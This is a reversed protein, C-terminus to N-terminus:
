VSEGVGDGLAKGQYTGAGSATGLAISSLGVGLGIDLRVRTGVVDGFLVGPGEGRVSVSIVMVGVDLRVGPGVLGGIEIGIGGGISGSAVSAGTKAGSDTGVLAGLGDTDRLGVGAGVKLGVGTTVDTTVGLGVSGGFSTVDVGNNMEFSVSFGESAVSDVGAGM